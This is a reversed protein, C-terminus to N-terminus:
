DVSAANRIQRVVSKYLRPGTPFIKVVSKRKYELVIFHYCMSPIPLGNNIENINVNQGLFPFM